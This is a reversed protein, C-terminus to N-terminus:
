LNLQFNTEVKTEINYAICSYRLDHRALTQVCVSCFENWVNSSLCWVRGLWQRKVTMEAVAVKM